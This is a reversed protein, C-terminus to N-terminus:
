EKEVVEENESDRLGQQFREREAQALHEVFTKKVELFHELDHIYEYLSASSEFEERSKPLDMIQCAEKYERFKRLVPESTVMDHFQEAVLETLAAVMATEETSQYIRKSYRRMYTLIELQINRLEMYKVHYLVERILNNGAQRLARDYGERLKAELSRYLEEEEQDQKRNRLSHSLSILIRSMLREIEVMDEDLQNELSPMHLNVLFGIGAGIVMQMMENGLWFWSVSQVALLHTVLVSCPVIGDHFKLRVAIPIFLLLYIGFAIANFGVLTFVLAGISLALVTSGLRMVALDRSKKRTNQVSLIVIIGANVAYSLGLRQSILIALAAGFATKLTRYGIYKGIKEM